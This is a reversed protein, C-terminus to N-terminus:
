RKGGLRKALDQVMPLQSSGDPTYGLQAAREQPIRGMQVAQAIAQQRIDPNHGFSVTWKVPTASDRARQVRQRYTELFAMRAAIRDDEEILPLAVGWAGAMEETWVVTQGEDFPLM